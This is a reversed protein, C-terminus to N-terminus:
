WYFRILFLPTRELLTKQVYSLNSVSSEEDFDLFYERSAVNNNNLLNIFTISIESRLNNIKKFTTRYNINFDLRMYPKLRKNNYENYELFYLFPPEVEEENLVLLPSSYPLGSHYNANLSFQMNKVKYSAVISVNHRVDNSSYFRKQSIEPFTNTSYGLSYNVWTNIKSWRKKLLLDIGKTTSSGRSFSHYESLLGLVPSVTSLGMTRNYYADVDLLWGNHRFVFGAAMKNANQSLQDEETNLIWLPNDVRIQNAGFNNLQSIFQHYIGGDAKLKWQGNILYQLNIRPSHVWNNNEQYYTSRNGIDIKLNKDVYAFSSFLNHFNAKENSQSQFEPTFTSNDGLDLSVEKTNYEYGAKISFTKSLNFTNSLTFSQDEISNSQNYGGTLVQDEMETNDYENNYISKYFSLNSTWQDSIKFDVKANIAETKVIINDSSLYPDDPFSYSYGFDQQNSYMGLSIGIRDTAQYLIKGNWDNYALTQNTNISGDKADVSQDDIISYQFVKETYSQLPPSNYIENISKRGSLVLSLHDDVIPIELNTHVETLTTGVSGHFANDITDTLSIDIIGGVRNDYEPDHAGKYINVIDVSFPNIASIMGFIHGANYIPAGEWLILNQDPSSGRIQLNTASDDVSNIGPLLQTTKLIDHEVNSHNKSLQNYDLEFSGFDNGELIGDLIYGKILIENGILGEDIEMLYLPCDNSQIDQVMFSITKYGLYSIEIEQNKHALLNFDFAGLLDSQSGKGANLVSINTAILSVKSQADVVTGCVRYTKQDEQFILITSQKIEFSYPSQYLLHKIDEKFNKFDITGSFFYGNLQEPDYNFIYDSDEELTGIVKQLPTNDFKLVQSQCFIVNSYIAICLILLYRYIYGQHRNM